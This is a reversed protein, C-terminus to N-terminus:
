IILLKILSLDSNTHLIALLDKKKMTGYGVVVVEDLLESDERLTVLALKKSNANLIITQYGIYSIAIQANIPVNTLEYNGNIDTIVGATTGKVQISAGIVAEGNQDVVKGKLIKLGKEKTDFGVNITNKNRNFYLGTQISLSKLVTEITQNSVNLNVRSSQSIKKQDYFFNVGTQKTIKKLVVEVSENKVNVSIRENQALILSGNFFYITFLLFVLIFRKTKKNEKTILLNNM